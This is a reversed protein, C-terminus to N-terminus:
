KRINSKSQAFKDITEHFVPVTNFSALIESISLKTM